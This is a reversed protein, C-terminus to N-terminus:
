ELHHAFTDQQSSVVMRWKSGLHPTKTESHRVFANSSGLLIDPKVTQYPPIYETHVIGFLNADDQCQVESSM